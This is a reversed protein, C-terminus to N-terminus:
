AQPQIQVFVRLVHFLTLPLTLVPPERLSSVCLMRTDTRRLVVAAMLSLCYAQQWPSSLSLLFLEPMHEWSWKEARGM